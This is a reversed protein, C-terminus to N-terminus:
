VFFSFCFHIFVPCDVRFLGCSTCEHFPSSCVFPCKDDIVGFQFSLQSDLRNVIRSRSSVQTIMSQSVSLFKSKIAVLTEVKQFVLGFAFLEIVKLRVLHFCLVM